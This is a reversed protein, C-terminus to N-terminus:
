AAYTLSLMIICLELWAHHGGAVVPGALGDDSTHSSAGSQKSATKKTAQAGALLPSEEEEDDVLSMETKGAAAGSGTVPNVHKKLLASGSQLATAHSLVVRPITEPMCNGMQFHRDAEHM